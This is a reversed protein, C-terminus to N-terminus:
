AHRGGRPSIRMSGLVVHTWPLVAMGRAQAAARILMRVAGDSCMFGCKVYCLKHAAVCLNHMLVIASAGAIIAIRFVERPHVLITNMTGTSVLYHGRIRKRTNLILVFFSECERNFQASNGIHASWYEVAKEPTDCVQMQEPTPCERLAVIKFEKPYFNKM